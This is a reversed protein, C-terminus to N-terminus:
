CPRRKPYVQDANVFVAARVAKRKTMGRTSKWVTLSRSRPFRAVASVDAGQHPCDVLSCTWPESRMKGLPLWGGGGAPTRCSDSWRHLLAEPRRCDSKKLVSALRQRNAACATAPAPVAAMGELAFISAHTTVRSALSASPHGGEEVRDRATRRWGRPRRARPLSSCRLRWAPSAGRCWAM